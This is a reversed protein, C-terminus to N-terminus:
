FTVKSFCLKPIFYPFLNLIQDSIHFLSLPSLRLLFLGGRLLCLHILISPLQVSQVALVIAALCSLWLCRGTLVSKADLRKHMQNNKQLQQPEGRSHLFMRVPFWFSPCLTPPISKFLGSGTLFHKRIAPCQRFLLYPLYIM